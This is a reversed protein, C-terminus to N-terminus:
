SVIETRGLKAIGSIKGRKRSMWKDYSARSFLLVCIVFLFLIWGSRYRIATGPNYIGFPYNPFLMWFLSFIGMIFSHVPLIRIERAILYSLVILLVSSEIFVVLQLPGIGVETLLPGVFARYIGEPAKTFVDYKEVFFVEFRTTRGVGGVTLAWQVKEALEDVKDRVLYLLALSALGGSLAIFARQRVSRTIFCGAIVFVFAILFHAKYVFLIIAVLGHYIGLKQGYLYMRVLYGSLVAVCFAVISEKSAISTWLSFTPLLVIGAMLVRRNGDLSSILYVLGVFTVTQFAINVLIPDDFLVSAFVGGLKATLGTALQSDSWSGSSFLEFRDWFGATEQEFIGHQYNYTDSIPTLRMVVLEGIVSYACRYLYLAAFYLYWAKSLKGVEYPASRSVPNGASM